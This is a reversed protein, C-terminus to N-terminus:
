NHRVKPGLKCQNAFFGADIRADDIFHLQETERGMSAGFRIWRPRGIRSRPVVVQVRDKKRSAKGRLGSCSLVEPGAFRFLSTYVQGARTDHHLVWRANPTKVDWTAVYGAKPLSRVELWLKVTRGRHVTGARVIDHKRNSRALVPFGGAPIKYVDRVADRTTQKGAYAPAALGVTPAVALVAVLATLAAAASRISRM